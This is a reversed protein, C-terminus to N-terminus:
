HRTEPQGVSVNGDAVLNDWAQTVLLEALMALQQISFIEGRNPRELKASFNELLANLSSLTESAQKLLTLTDVGPVVAFMHRTSPVRRPRPIIAVEASDCVKAPASNDADTPTQPQPKSFKKM